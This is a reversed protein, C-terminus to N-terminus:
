RGLAATKRGVTLAPHQALLDFMNEMDLVAQQIMRYDTSPPLTSLLPLRNSPLNIPPCRPPLHPAPRPRRPRCCDRGAVCVGGTTAARPGRGGSMAAGRAGAGSGVRGWLECTGFFNLPGYLQQMLTVFLVADGVTLSGDAIGQLPTPPLPPQRSAGPACLHPAEKRLSSLM